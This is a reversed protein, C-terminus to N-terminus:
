AAALIATLSRGLGAGASARFFNTAAEHGRQGILLEMQLRAEHAAKGNARDVVYNSGAHLLYLDISFDGILDTVRWGCSEAVNNLSEATFYSLHDPPCIWFRGPIDSRRYLLEQFESGDNPVTVVLVGSEALLSKLSRLLDVPDIVHELVNQLWVVDFSEGERILRDLTHFLDGTDVFPEMDPNMSRIGEISFDIGRVQCGRANYWALTHGEGCGVDLLAGAEKGARAREVLYHKQAIKLEMFQLEHAPYSHRYNGSQIQYYQEAYYRELEEVTPKDVIELFGLEHHRLRPDDVPQNSLNTM